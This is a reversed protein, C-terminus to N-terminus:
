DEKNKPDLLGMIIISLKETLNTYIRILIIIILLLFYFGSLIIYGIYSSEFRNNLYEALGFSLLFFVISILILIFFGFLINVIVKSLDTKIDYKIIELKADVYAALTEMLQKVKTHEEM